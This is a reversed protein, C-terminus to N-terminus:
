IVDQEMLVYITVTLSLGVVVVNLDIVMEIPFKLFGGVVIGM